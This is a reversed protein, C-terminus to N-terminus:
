VDRTVLTGALLYYISASVAVHAVDYLVEDGKVLVCTFVVMNSESVALVGGFNQANSRNIESHTTILYVKM